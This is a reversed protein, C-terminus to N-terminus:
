RTPQALTESEAAPTAEPPLDCEVIKFIHYFGVKSSLLTEKHNICHRTIMAMRDDFGASAKTSPMRESIFILRKWGSFNEIELLHHRLKSWRYELSQKV